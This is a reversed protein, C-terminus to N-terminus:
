LEYIVEDDCSVYKGIQTCEQASYGKYIQQTDTRNM